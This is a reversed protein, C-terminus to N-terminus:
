MADVVSWVTSAPNDHGDELLYECLAEAVSDRSMSQTKRQQKIILYGDNLDFCHNRQHHLWQMVKTTHSLMAQKWQRQQLQLQQIRYRSLQVIRQCNTRHEDSTMRVTMVVNVEECTQPAMLQLSQILNAITTDDTPLTTRQNRRRYRHLILQPQRVHSRRIFQTAAPVNTQPLQTELQRQISTL